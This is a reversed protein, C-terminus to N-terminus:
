TALLPSLWGMWQTMHLLWYVWGDLVLTDIILNKARSHPTTIPETVDTDRERERERERERHMYTRNPELKQFKM